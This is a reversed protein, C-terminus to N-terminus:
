ILEMTNYRVSGQCRGDNCMEVVVTSEGSKRLMSEM